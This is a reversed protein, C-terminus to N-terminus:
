TGGAMRFMIIMDRFMDHFYGRMVYTIFAMSVGLMFLGVMINLPLGVIFINMQPVTRAILGMAVTVVLLCAIMPVGVKFAIIFTKQLLGVVERTFPQSVHFSDLPVYRYSNAIALILLHHGDMAIFILLAILFEFQGLVSVQEESMPDIVNVIGFGIQMGFIQGSLQIGAFVALGILGILVGLMSERVMMLVFPVIGDPIPPFAGATFPFIIVSLLFSLGIKAMAPVSGSGLLPSLAIMTALRSFILLFYQFELVNVHIWDLNM